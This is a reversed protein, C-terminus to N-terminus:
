LIDAVSFFGQQEIAMLAGLILWEFKLFIRSHFSFAWVFLSVYVSM